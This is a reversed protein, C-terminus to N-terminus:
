QNVAIKEAPSRNLVADKLSAAAGMIQDTLHAPVDLENLTANLHGAVAAFHADSLGKDEVLSKHANRMYTDAGATDGKFITTFFAKQKRSQGSMDVSDFFPTLLPDALVKKYFIDVAANVAADGGIEDYISM